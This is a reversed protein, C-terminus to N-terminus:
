HYDIVDSFKKKEYAKLFAEVVDPDFQSGSCRTIEAIAEDASRKDKYPRITTIADFTDAVAIIRALLPIQKGKLRDPYGTGDFREQHSRVGGLVMGLERIPYLITAGIAPHEKIKAFEQPTLKEKKNLINDPIGIKGIDHLLASIHLTERFNEFTRVEQSSQMEESIILCYATVRQTHGHTYPDRADIATALAISTHIFLRHSKEYLTEIEKVKEQLSEILQANSIAMATDNSLTLFFGLEERDFEQGNIKNGLVLIGLLRKKFFSPVCIDARLLDMQGRIKRVKDILPSREGHFKEDKLIKDVLKYTLAGSPDLVPAHIRDTFITILPNDTSIRIYGVPIKKGAEGKSDILVYSKKKEKYLLVATHTTGVEKDIMQVIRKILHEPKKFRIMGKSAEELVIRYDLGVKKKPKKDM